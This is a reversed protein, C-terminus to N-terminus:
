QTDKKNEYKGTLVKEFNSQNVLWGLDCTFKGTKGTLFDSNSVYEFFRDFWDLAEATNTAMRQGARKGTEYKETLVWRWRAKLAPANKGARWLSKRPMSMSPLHKAFIEIIQEHPCDPLSATSSSAKAEQYEESSHPAKTSPETQTVEQFGLPNENSYEVPEKRPRGGKSGNLRAAEMAPAALGLEKAVRPNHRTGDESIPFYTDAVFKVADQEAKTMARCVRYLESVEKPLPQETSYVEDLLLTYAGHQALTLRSTKKAYDAM